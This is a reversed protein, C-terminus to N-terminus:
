KRGQDACVVDGEGAPWTRPFESGLTGLPVLTGPTAGGLLSLTVPGLYQEGGSWEVVYTSGAPIKEDKLPKNVAAFDPTQALVTTIFAAFAAASITFRM